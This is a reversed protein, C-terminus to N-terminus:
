KKTLHLTLGHHLVMRKVLKGKTGGFAYRITKSLVMFTKM